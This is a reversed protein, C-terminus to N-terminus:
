RSSKRLEPSAHCQPYHGDAMIEEITFPCESPLEPQEGHTEMQYMARRRVDRWAKALAEELHHKLSPSREMDDAIEQRANDCEHRWKRRPESAQSYRLTLLHVMVVTLHSQLAKLQGIGMDRIEEAVNSWDLAKADRTELCASQQRTWAYFDREYLTRSDKRSAIVTSTM